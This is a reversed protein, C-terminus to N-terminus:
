THPESEYEGSPCNRSDSRVKPVAIIMSFFSDCPPESSRIAHGAEPPAGILRVADHSRSGFAGRQDASALCTYKVASFPPVVCTNRTAARAPAGTSCIVFPSRRSLLTVKSLAIVRM